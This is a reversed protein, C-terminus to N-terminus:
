CNRKVKPSAEFLSRFSHFVKSRESVSCLVLELTSIFLPKQAMFLSPFSPSAGKQQRIEGERQLFQCYHFSNRMGEQLAATELVFYCTNGIVKETSCSKIM